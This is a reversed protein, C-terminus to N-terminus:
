TKIRDKYNQVQGASFQSSDIEKDKLLCVNTFAQASLSLGLFGTVLLSLKM